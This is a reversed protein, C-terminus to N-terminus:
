RGTNKPRSGYWDAIMRELTPGYKGSLETRNFAEAQEVMSNLQVLRVRKEESLLSSFRKPFSQLYNYEEVARNALVEMWSM